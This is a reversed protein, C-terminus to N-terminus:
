PKSNPNPNSDTFCPIGGFINTMTAAWTMAQPCTHSEDLRLGRIRGGIVETYLEQCLRKNM